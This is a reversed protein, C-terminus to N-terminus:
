HLGKGILGIAYLCFCLPICVGCSGAFTGLTADAWNLGAFLWTFLPLLGMYGIITVWWFAKANNSLNTSFIIVLTMGGGLILSLLFAIGIRGMIMGFSALHPLYDPLAFIIWVYILFVIGETIGFTIWGTYTKKPKVRPKNNFDVKGRNYDKLFQLEEPTLLEQLEKKQRFNTRMYLKPNRLVMEKLDNGSSM